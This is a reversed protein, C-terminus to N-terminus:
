LGSNHVLLSHEKPLGNCVFGSIMLKWALQNNHPMNSFIEHADEVRRSDLYRVLHCELFCDKRIKSFIRQAVDVKGCKSYLTVLANEVPLVSEPDFDPSSRSSTRMSLRGM